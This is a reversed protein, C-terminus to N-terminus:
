EGSKSSALPMHPLVSVVIKLANHLWFEEDFELFQGQQDRCIRRIYLGTTGLNADLSKAINPELTQTYIELHREAPELGFQTKLVHWLSRDLSHQLLGPCTQPNIYIKEVLCPRDNIYRRRWIEYIPAGLPLGLTAAMEDPLEVLKKSLTQTRASFGQEQVYRMFGIDRSPDYQIRPPTVFWGRRNARFILGETELQTLAQRATVRTTAFDEALQRESPLKDSESWRGQAIAAALTDRIQLYLARTHHRQM